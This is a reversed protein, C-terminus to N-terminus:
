GVAAELGILLLFVLAAIGAALAVGLVAVIVGLVLFSRAREWWQVRAERGTIVRQRRYPDHERWAQLPSRPLRYWRRASDEPDATSAALAFAGRWSTVMPEGARVTLIRWRRTAVALAVLSPFLVSVLSSPVPGSVLSVGGM